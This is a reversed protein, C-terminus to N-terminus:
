TARGNAQCKQPRATLTNLERQHLLPVLETDQHGHTGGSRQQQRGRRHHQMGMFIKGAPHALGALDRLEWHNL